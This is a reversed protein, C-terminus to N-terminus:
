VDSELRKWAPVDQYAVFFETEPDDRSYEAVREKIAPLWCNQHGLTSIRGLHNMYAASYWRRTESM